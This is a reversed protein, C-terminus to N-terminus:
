LLHTQSEESCGLKKTSKGAKVTLMARLIFRFEEEHRGSQMGDTRQESRWCWALGAWLPPLLEGGLVKANKEKM